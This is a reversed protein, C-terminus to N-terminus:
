RVIDTDAPTIDGPDKPVYPPEGLAANCVNVADVITKKQPQLGYHFDGWGHRKLEDRATRLADAMKLQAAIVALQSPFVHPTNDNQCNLSLYGMVWGCRICKEESYGKHDHTLVDVPPPTTTM